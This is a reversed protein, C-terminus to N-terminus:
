VDSRIEEMFLNLADRLSSAESNLEGSAHSLDEVNSRTGQIRESVDLVATRAKRAGAAAGSAKERIATTASSQEDIQRSIVSISGDVAKVASGVKTLANAAATSNASIANIQTDIQETMAATQDALMKVEKAVVAFGKGAEGARAAEITANLALMRTNGAIENITDVVSQIQDSSSVLSRITEESADVHKVVRETQTASESVSSRIEQIAIDIDATAAELGEVNKEADEAATVANGALDRSADSVSIFATVTNSVEIAAEEVNVLGKASHSEFRDALEGTARKRQLREEEERAIEQERHKAKQEAAEKEQQRQIEVAKLAEEELRRNDLLREQFFGLAKAMRGFEDKRELGTITQSLNGNALQDMDHLTLIVQNNMDRVILATIGAVIFLLLGGLFLTSYFGFSAETRIELAHETIKKELSLELSRFGNILVTTANFWASINGSANGEGLLSDEVSFRMDDAAVVAQREYLNTLEANLDSPLMTSVQDTLAQQAGGLALLSLAEGAPFEPEAFGVAGVTRELGAIDKLSSLLAQTRQLDLIEADSSSNSLARSLANFAITLNRYYDRVDDEAISLGRTGTQIETHKRIRSSLTTLATMAQDSIDAVIDPDIELLKSIAVNTTRQQEELTGDFSAGNTAIFGIAQGREKQIEHLATSVPASLKVAALTKDAEGLSMYRDSIITLALILIGVCSLLTVGGLKQPLASNQLWEISHRV